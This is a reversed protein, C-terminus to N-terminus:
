PLFRSNTVLMDRSLTKSFIPCQSPFVKKLFNEKGTFIEGVNKEHESVSASRPNGEDKNRRLRHRRLQLEHPRRNRQCSQGCVCQQANRQCHRSLVQYPQARSQYTCVRRQGVNGGSTAQRRGCLYAKEYLCTNGWRHRNICLFRSSTM